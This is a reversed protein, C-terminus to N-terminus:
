VVESIGDWPFMFDGYKINAKANLLMRHEMMYSTPNYNPLLRNYPRVMCPVQRIGPLIGCVRYTVVSIVYCPWSPLKNESYADFRSYRNIKHPVATAAGYTSNFSVIGANLQGAVPHEVVGRFGVFTLPGSYDLMDARMFNDDVQSGRCYGKGVFFPNTDGVVLDEMYLCCIFQTVLDPIVSSEMLAMFSKGDDTVWVHFTREEDHRYGDIANYADTTSYEGCALEDVATARTTANGGSFAGSPSVIFGYRTELFIASDTLQLLIQHGYISTIVVWARVALVTDYSSTWLDYAQIPNTGDSSTTVTGWGSSVLSEKLHYLFAKAAVISSVGTPTIRQNIQSFVWAM